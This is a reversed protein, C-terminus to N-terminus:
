PSEGANLRVARGSVVVLTGWGFVWLGVARHKMSWCNSSIGRFSRPSWFSNSGLGIDSQCRWQFELWYPPTSSTMHAYCRASWGRSRKSTLSPLWDSPSEHAGFVSRPFSSTSITNTSTPVASTLLPSSRWNEARLVFNGLILEAPRSVFIQNLWWPQQTIM